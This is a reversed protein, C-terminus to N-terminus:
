PGVSSALPVAVPAAIGIFRSISNDGANATWISGSADVAIGAPAALSGLGTAPSLPASQLISLKSLSGAAQGDTIWVAGQGDIAVATPMSLGGGSFPVPANGQPSNSFYSVANTGQYAVWARGAGDVAIGDAALVSGDTFGSGSLLSQNTSFEVVDSALNDSVWISGTSDIAIGAPAQLTGGANLPSGGVPTGLSNLETISGGAFNAIWVNNQSDIAIGTPGSIGGATFTMSSQVIGSSVTLEVISNLLTDAVWVNGTRDVAIAQAGFISNNGTYGSPGTLPTGTASLETVSNGGANAIWANGSADLAIGTPASLGGGTFKLAVTWDNPAKSITTPFPAFPQIVNLLSAVQNAPFNDINLMATVTDVPVAGSPTTAAAFLASCGTASPGSSNVCAALIDALANITDTPVAVTSPVATGPSVGTSMNALTNATAFANVLGIANAGQAGVHAFDTTFPTLAVVSAVTTVENLEINTASTVGSCPGLAAMLTLATNNTSASIGPNGGSAVIYLLPNNGYVATNSTCNWDGSINFNGAGDTQVVSAILPTSASKLGTIGVAYLQITAGSVPQQGGHVSGSLTGFAIPASSTRTSSPTNMGCGSLALTMALLLGVAAFKTRVATNM